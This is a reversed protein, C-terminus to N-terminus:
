IFPKIHIIGATGAAGAVCCACQRSLVVRCRFYHLLSMLVYALNCINVASYSLIGTKQSMVSCQQTCSGLLSCFCTTFCPCFLFMQGTILQGSFSILWYSCMHPAETCLHILAQCPLEISPCQEGHKV